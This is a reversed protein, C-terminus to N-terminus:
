GGLGAPDGPPLQRAHEWVVERRKLGVARVAELRVTAARELFFDVAATDRGRVGPSVTALLRRDGAYSAGTNAVRIRFLRPARSGAAATLGRPAAYLAAVGTTALRLLRGRTVRGTM